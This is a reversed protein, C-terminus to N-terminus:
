RASSVVRAAAYARGACEILYVGATGGSPKLEVSRRSGAQVVVSRLRRGSCDYLTMRMAASGPNRINVTTATTSFSPTRNGKHDPAIRERTAEGPLPRDEETRQPNDLDIDLSPYRIEGNRQADIDAQERSYCSFELSNADLWLTIRRMDEATFKGEKMRQQHNDGLLAKGIPSYMAGFAGPKTRHGGHGLTLSSNSGQGHFFFAQNRLSGYDASQIGTNNEVHCPICTSELVPRVLRHYNVPEVGGVEPELRSPARKMALPAKPVTPMTWKDEHCGLCSLHEGPHVYTGSRMSQVAVGREDLAQFYIECRVPAECYVSGDSEVPVTGLPMRALGGGMFGLKPEKHIPSKWPRPFVQVIRLEKIITGEPWEFDSAYINSVSIRARTHGNAGYRKGQWTATPTVPPRTRPKIPIAFFPQTGTSSTAYLVDENGFRDLLVLSHTKENAVIFFDESLPWPFTYLDTSHDGAGPGECPECQECEHPLCGPTVMEVQSMRSDDRVTPDILIIPGRLNGHHINAIAAFRQSGPIPRICFEAWPTTYRMDKFQYWKWPEYYPDDRSMTYHPLPYNGHPSRPDRGDATCFWITHGAMFDRDIYDWRTYVIQGDNTVRPFEETTEHYSIPFLDTGDGAVSYMTCCVQKTGRFNHQCRTCAGRRNSSFVIRGNPLWCPYVDCYRDSDTLQICDSGDMNVKFLKWTNDPSYQYNSYVKKDPDGTYEGRGAGANWEFVLTQGDYDLDLTYFSGQGLRKGKYRGQQIVIESSFDRVTINDSQIGSLRMIPGTNYARRAHHFNQVASSGMTGRTFLMADFDILPNSLALQRRVKRLQVYLEQESVASKKSLGTTGRVAFAEIQKEFAEINEVGGMSKLRNLLARSRRLEVDLPSRDTPHVLAEPDLIYQAVARSKSLAGSQADAIEERLEAFDHLWTDAIEQETLAGTSGFSATACLTVLLGVARYQRRQHSIGKMTTSRAAPAAYGTEDGRRSMNESGPMEGMEGFLLPSFSRACLLGPCHRKRGSVM